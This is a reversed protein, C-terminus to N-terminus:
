DRHRAIEDVMKRFYNLRDRVLVVARVKAEQSSDCGVMEVEDMGIKHCHMIWQGKYNIHGCTVTVSLEGVKATFTKPVRELDRQSYSTADKWM